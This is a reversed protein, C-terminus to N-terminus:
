TDGRRHGGFGGDAAVTIRTWVTFDPTARLKDTTAM